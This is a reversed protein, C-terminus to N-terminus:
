VVAVAVAGRGYTASLQHVRVTVATQPAGFDLTQEAATYNATPVITEITRKVTAGDMIDVAYAEREEGLPVEVQEWADGAIRTRRIWGITLDGSSRSGRVHAPSLPRLGLAQYTHTASVYAADTHPSTKPGYRWALTLRAEDPTLLSSAVAGDILVVRAGPAIPDRMADATGAQGRLLVSLRYTSPALLLADRFQLLEWQGDANELAILNAGGLLRLEDVSTLTGNALVVDLTNAHDTRDRPGPRLATATVGMTARTAAIAGLRYTLGDASRWFAIGGPWPSAFAAVYGAYPDEAGSILPLDLFAATAPGYIDPGSVVPPRQPAKVEEFVSPEVSLADLAKYGGDTIGTIRYRQTGGDATFTVVDSPEIAMRSPPLALSLRQRAAWSEHLWREAISQARDPSLVIPLDATAIRESAVTARRAEATGRRYSEQGDIFTLKAASPLETEQGRVVQFLAVDPKTEVLDDLDLVAAPTRRGRHAFRVTGSQEYSDFAFALELPQLAQRASMVRDIVYGDLAGTLGSVSYRAFGYVDLIAAVVAALSGGALRGTLWHGLPWNDGDAWSELDYPFAPYPRADWTYVYLRSPDVMRGGYVASVPNNASVFTEHAPDFTEHFAQIYRRQILDDRLGRSFYPLFSESSKPDVFVNPQNAGKDVAPCGLETFWIPKSEPVWATHSASETGGPRNYHHNSWWNRIDKYRFVWPKGAGDTITSRM